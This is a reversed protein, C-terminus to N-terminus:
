DRVYMDGEVEPVEIWAATELKGQMHTYIYIHVCM